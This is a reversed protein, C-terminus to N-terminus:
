GGESSTHNDNLSPWPRGTGMPVLALQPINRYKIIDSDQLLTLASCIM